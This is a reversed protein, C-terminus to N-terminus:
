FDIRLDLGVRKGPAISGPYQPDKVDKASRWLIGLNGMNINITSSFVKTGLHIKPKWGFNIYELRVHDGRLVNIESAAYFSDRSQDAPYVIGPVNTYQEDGSQQWRSEFDAHAVGTNFLNTYSTVPKKIYYDAKFSVNFSLLFDRYTFTNGLSGYWRPVVSGFFHINDAERNRTVAESRIATYNTSPQGDLYGQPNGQGDLGAWRYAAIGRLPMGEMGNIRSGGNLYDIVGTFQQAYYRATKDTNYNILIDSYYGLKGDWSPRLRLRSEIGHGVMEAVNKTVTGSRGWGTYDFPVIGYLNKGNKQFYEISGSLFEGKSRFDVAINTTMVKEWRLTPDNLATIALTPFGTYTATASSAIPLATKSLNVNGSFGITARLKVYPLWELQYFGSRSLEWGAGVSWFPNWQDNTEAGFINAGDRRVSAYLDYRGKWNLNANGYLSVFRNIGKSFAPKGTIGSLAGTLITPYSNNYDVSASQLPDESYGYVQMSNGGTKGQRLEAGVLAKLRWGGWSKTLDFQNRWTYSGVTNENSNRIGGQPVNYKVAGTNPDISSYLNVTTRAYYSDSQYLAVQDSRQAQYQFGTNFDLFDFIKAKINAVAFWETLDTRNTNYKYDELPLYDWSLLKGPHFSRMYYPDYSQDVSVPKGDEDRFYLYPVFKGNYNFSTYGLMGSRDTQNTFKLNLGMELRDSIKVVNNWDLNLKRMRNNTESRDTTYGIGLHYRVQEATRSISLYSQSLLPARVFDKKYNAVGDSTLLRDIAMTSDQVTILGNKRRDLISIVPTVARYPMRSLQGTYYGSEYLMSEIAIFTANDMRYQDELRMKEQTVLSQSFAISLGKNVAGKKSTLVLVGNGARAGWISSAAADKLISVSEISNPDINSLDGEYIFGDLVVLPDVQGNITALGRITFNLKQLHKNNSYTNDFQMGSAVNRLRDIINAGMQEGLKKAGLVQVSGTVENPRLVQYGTNVQAEELMNDKSEMAISGIKGGKGIAVLKSLYGVMRLELTDSLQVTLSFDGQEDTTGSVHGQKARISVGHLPLNRSDTVKGKVTISQGYSPVCFLLPVVPLLMTKVYNSKM